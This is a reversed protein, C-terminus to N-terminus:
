RCSYDLQNSLSNLPNLLLHLPHSHDSFLKLLHFVVDCVLKDKEGRGERRSENEAEKNVALVGGGSSEREGEKGGGERGEEYPPRPLPTPAEQAM